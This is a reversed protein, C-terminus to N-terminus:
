SIPSYGTEEVIKQGSESLFWEILLPINPNDNNKDYVAYFDSVVPYSGDSIHEPDPYIGDVALMKVGGNAAVEGAYFRFSFGIASSIFDIDRVPKEDGMFRLFASQSGSGENRQVAGIPINKGGLESWLRYKGTYIGRIEDATLSNVPNDAKVLFVFAERGIPVFELEANMDAAYKKQEESPAACLIIDANGEAVAKYASPTNRMQLRSEATFDSGDFIVSDEPYLANVFASSIPYLAAASDIVPLDDTLPLKDKIKIIKSNDDFPLYDALEISKARMVGSKDPICRKTFNEYIFLDTLIIILTLLSIILIKTHAKM